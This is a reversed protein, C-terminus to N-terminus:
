SELSVDEETPPKWEEWKKRGSGNLCFWYEELSGRFDPTATMRVLEKRQPEYVLVDVLGETVLEELAAVVERDTFDRAWFKRWGVSGTNNLLKAISPVQEIDYRLVDVVFMPIHKSIRNATEAM